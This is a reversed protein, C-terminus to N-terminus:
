IGPGITEKKLNEKRRKEASSYGGPRASYSLCFTILRSLSVISEAIASAAWALSSVWSDGCLFCTEDGIRSVVWGRGADQCHYNLNAVMGSLSPRCEVSLM